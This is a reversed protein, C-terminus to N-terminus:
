FRYLYSAKLFLGRRSERLASAEDTRWEGDQYTRRERLAGYGAFFVTGPRLEYSGLADLLLRHSSTDHQAILRAYLRRSFQYTTKTNVITLGYVAARTDDRDFDIRQWEIEQSLRSNPQITAFASLQRSRGQFPDVDDYYTAYGRNFNAGARLWRFLQGNGFARWRGRKFRQGLWPEHGGLYDARFFIQRSMHLRIGQVALFDSGDQVRDQGGQWFVFPVVRKIFAFRSKSPPYFSLAGFGWGSTFGTRNYFASDMKFERDYHEVQGFADFRRSSM